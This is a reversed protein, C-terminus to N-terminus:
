PRRANKTLRWRQARCACEWWTLLYDTHFTHEPFLAAVFRHPVDARCVKCRDVVLYTGLRRPTERLNFRPARRRRIMACGM